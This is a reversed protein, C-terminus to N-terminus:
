PGTAEIQKGQGTCFLKFMLGSLYRLTIPPDLAAAARAPSNAVSLPGMLFAQKSNEDSRRVCCPGDDHTRKAQAAHSSCFGVSTVLPNSTLGRHRRSPRASQCRVVSWQGSVVSLVMNEGSRRVSCRGDHHSRKAQGAWHLFVKFMLGRLYRLTIPPGLADAARSPPNVGSLLGM